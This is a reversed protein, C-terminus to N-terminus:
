FPALFPNPRGTAQVTSAQPPAKLIRFLPNNVVDQSDLQVKSLEATNKFQTPTLFQPITQPKKIFVYYVSAVVIALIVVWILINVINVGHRREEEVVIAM